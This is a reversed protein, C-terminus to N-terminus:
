DFRLAIVPDVKAGRRAPALSAVLAMAVAMAAVVLIMGWPYVLAVTLGIASTSSRILAVSLLWGLPLALILAVGSLTAAEVLVLGRVQGRQAGVARLIGIERTRMIVSMALTNALGLLGVVAAVLILATFVVFYQRLQARGEARRTSGLQVNVGVRHAADFRHQVATRVVAPDAGARVRVAAGLPATANFLAAGDRAGVIAIDGVEITAFTAAISFQRPGAATALTFQSGRKLGVKAATAQTLIISGGSALAARASADDGDAWPFSQVDFYSAPDVFNLRVPFSRHVSKMTAQGFGLPTARAVGPTGDILALDEPAM